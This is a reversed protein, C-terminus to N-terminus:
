PAGPRRGAVLEVADATDAVGFRGNEYLVTGACSAFLKDFVVYRTGSARAAELAREHYARPFDDRKMHLALGAAQMRKWWEALTAPCFLHSGGDKYDGYITHLSFSRFGELYVPTVLSEDGPLHDRVWVQVDHWPGAAPANFLVGASAFREHLREGSLVLVAALGACAAALLPRATTKLLPVGAAALSFAALAWALPGRSRELFPYIMLLLSLLTWLYNGLRSARAGGEAVRWATFAFFLVFLLYTCRALNLQLLFRSSVIEAFAIVPFV